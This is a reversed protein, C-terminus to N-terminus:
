GERLKLSPCGVTHGSSTVVVETVKWLSQDEPELSELTARWQNNKWEDLQCNVSQQLRNVKAKLAPDM